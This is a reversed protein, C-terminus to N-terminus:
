HLPWVALILPTGLVVVLISLPLGLHWYDGFRYGGPGMVLTNCQHGIPSLFDCSAGVAVAILLADGNIGLQKAIAVAVPGMVIVAAAHHVLPTLLMTIVLLMALTAPIPLSASAHSIWSAILDTTGTSRIAEGVPILAGLLVLIPWDIADYVERLTLIGCLVTLVAGATFALEPPMTETASAAVCGFLILTMVVLRRPRGLQLKREALPLCGLSALTEGMGDAAGQLAIVDGTSFMTHALRTTTRRGGRSMAVLSVGYRSRLRLEVGTRGIMPSEAMIVAEVVVTDATGTRDTTAEAPGVLEIGATQVL